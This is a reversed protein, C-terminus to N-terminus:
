ARRTPPLSPLVAVGLSLAIDKLGAVVNTVKEAEYRRSPCSRACAAPLGRVRGVPSTPADRRYAEVLLRLNPTTTASHSGRLLFLSQGYRGIRELARVCGRTPASTPSGADGPGGGQALWTGLVEKRVDQIKVAIPTRRCLARSRRSWPSWAHCCTSRTMSSASTSSTAQGSQAMNRAIQLSMTTKGTGQAGGILM